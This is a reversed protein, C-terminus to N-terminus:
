ATPDAAADLLARAEAAVDEPVRVEIGGTAQSYGDMSLASLEHVVEALFGAADLRSWILQAEAPSFCRYVPVLKM